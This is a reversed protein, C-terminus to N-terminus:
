DLAEPESRRGPAALALVQLLRAREVPKQLYAAVLCPDDGERQVQDSSWGSLVVLPTDPLGALAAERSLRSCVEWGAGDPLGLDCLILDPQFAALDEVAQALSSCHLAQHGAKRLTSVIGMAVLAEDEVLLVKLPWSAPAREPLPLRASLASAQAQALPLRVTLTTGQGPQSSAEMRGGHAAVIARSVTLGLGQGAVGKTSYFPEFFRGLAQEDVGPGQDAFTIVVLGDELRGSIDLRGGEPMAEMANKALNLFVETLEGGSGLVNLGRPLDLRVELRSERAPRGMGEVLRRLSRLLRGVDVVEQSDLSGRSGGVYRSLRQVVDRGSRAGQIVNDLLGKIEGRDRRSRGLTALAAQGNSMIAMLVNNFNHAVGAAMQLLTTENHKRETIDRSVVLIYKLAGDGGLVPSGLSEVWLYGGEKKRLRNENRVPTAIDGRAGRAILDLVKAADDPHLFERINEGQLEEPRYGLIRLASPSAYNIVLDLDHLCVLDSSNESLLRFREESERLAGEAQKRWTFDTLTNLVAPRGEWEIQSSNAFLWRVEGQKSIIRLDYGTPVQEGALRRQYRELILPRDEPHVHEIFPQSAYEEASFGTIELMKRNFFVPRGDQAVMIGDNTTEVVMRYKAEAKRLAQEARQRETIDEFIVMQKGDSLAVPLFLTEKASGDRCIV